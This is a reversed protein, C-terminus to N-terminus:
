KCLIYSKVSILSNKNWFRIEGSLTAIRESNFYYDFDELDVDRYRKIVRSFFGLMRSKVHLQKKKIFQFEFLMQHLLCGVLCMKQFIDEAPCFWEVKYIVLCFKKNGSFISNWQKFLQSSFFCVFLCYM